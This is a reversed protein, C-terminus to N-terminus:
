AALLRALTEPPGHNGAKLLIALTRGDDAVGRCLPMGPLPVAVVELLGITLRNLVMQATDGGSVILRRFDKAYAYGQSLEALQLAHARDATSRRAAACEYPLHLILNTEEPLPPAAVDPVIEFALAGDAVAYRIQAHAEPSASGIVALWPGEHLAPLPSVDLPETKLVRALAGCLEASGCL